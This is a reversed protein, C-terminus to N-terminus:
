HFLWWIIGFIVLMWFTTQIGWHWEANDQRHLKKREKSPHIAGCHPCDEAQTSVEKGCDTCESLM